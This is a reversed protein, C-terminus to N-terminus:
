SIITRSRSSDVKTNVFVKGIRVSRGRLLETDCAPYVKAIWGFDRAGQAKHVYYLLQSFVRLAM